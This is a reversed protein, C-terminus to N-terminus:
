LKTHELIKNIQLVRWHECQHPLLRCERRHCGISTTHRRSTPSCHVISSTVHHRERNAVVHRICCILAISLSKFYFEPM